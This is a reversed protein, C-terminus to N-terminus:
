PHDVVAAAAASDWGARRVVAGVNERQQTISLTQLFKVKESTATLAEALTEWTKMAAPSCVELCLNFVTMALNRSLGISCSDQIM